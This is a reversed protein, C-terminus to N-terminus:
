PALLPRSVAISTYGRQRMSESVLKRYSQLERSVASIFIKRNM